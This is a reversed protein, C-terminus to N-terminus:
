RQINLRELQGDTATPIESSSRQAIPTSEGDRQTRGAVYLEGDHLELSDLSLRKGADNFVSPLTILMLPDGEIEQRDVALGIDRGSEAVDDLLTGLPLPLKGARARRIRVAVVNVDQLYLEAELSVVASWGPRHWRFAVQLRDNALNVRPETIEPPFLTPHNKRVDYALWGNIQDATFIAQWESRRRVDSVLAATRRLMVDSAQRAAAPDQSLAETYFPPSQQSAWYLAGVAAGISIAVLAGVIFVTRRKNLV